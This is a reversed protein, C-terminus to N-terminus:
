LRDHPGRAHNRALKWARIRGINKAEVPPLELSEARLTDPLRQYFTNSVVIEDCAAVTNLRHALNISDGIVGMHTRSLPRLSLVQLDGLTISVHVGAAPQIQDLQRQWETAVSAGIDLLGRACAVAQELYGPSAEPVGFLGVVSDGLFQYLMGSDNVIRHRTMSTFSTLARRSVADDRTDRVYSSYSCLDAMVVVVDRCLGPPLISRPLSRGAERLRRVRWFALHWLLAAQLPDNQFGEGFAHVGKVHDVANRLALLDDEGLADLAIGFRGGLLRLLHHEDWIELALGPRLAERLLREVATRDSLAHGDTAVVVRAAGDTAPVPKGYKRRISQLLRERSYGTDVEVFYPPAQGARVEIDAFAGGGLAVEQRIRIAEPPVGEDLHRFLLYDCCMGQLFLRLESSTDEM